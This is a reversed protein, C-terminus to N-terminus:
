LPRQAPNSSTGGVVLDEGWRESKQFQDYFVKIGSERLKEAIPNVYWRDEGAYSIAVDFEFQEETVRGNDGVIRLTRIVM